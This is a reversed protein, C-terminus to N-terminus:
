ASDDRYGFTIRVAENIGAGVRVGRLNRCWLHFYVIAVQYIGLPLCTYYIVQCDTAGLM